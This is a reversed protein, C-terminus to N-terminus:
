LCPMRVHRYFGRIRGKWPERSYKAIHSSTGNLAHVFENRDVVVGIHFPLDSLKLVIVDGLREQGPQIEVWSKSENEILPGVEKRAESNSYTYSPVEVDYQEKLIKRVLGWCDFKDPGRGRDEYELGIYQEVWQPIM